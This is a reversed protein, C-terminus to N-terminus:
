LNKIAVVPTRVQLLHDTDPLEKAAPLVSELLHLSLLRCRLNLKLDAGLVTM